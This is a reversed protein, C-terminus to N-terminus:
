STRSLLSIVRKYFASEKQNVLGLKPHNNLGSHKQNAADLAQKAYGEAELMNGRAASFIALAGNIHFHDIPLLLRGGRDLYEKVTKEAVDFLTMLEESVVFAAFEIPLTTEEVCEPLTKYDIGTLYTSIAADIQGTLALYRALITHALLFERSNPFNAISYRLLSISHHILEPAYSLEVAQIRLNQVKDFDTKCRKLKLFFDAQDDTDWKKKRYWVVKKPV